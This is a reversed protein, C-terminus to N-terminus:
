EKEGELGTVELAAKMSTDVLQQVAEKSPAYNIACSLLATLGAFLGEEVIVGKSEWSRLLSCMDATAKRYSEESNM